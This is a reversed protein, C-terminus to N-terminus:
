VYKFFLLGNNHLMNNIRDVTLILTWVSGLIGLCLEWTWFVHVGEEGLSILLSFFKALSVPGQDKGLIHLQSLEHRSCELEPQPCNPFLVLRARPSDHM